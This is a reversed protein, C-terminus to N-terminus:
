WGLKSPESATTGDHTCSHVVIQNMIMASSEQWGLTDQQGIVAPDAVVGWRACFDWSDISM